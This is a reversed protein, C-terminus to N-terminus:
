KLRIGTGPSRFDTIRRGVDMRFQLDSDLDQEDAQDVAMKAEEYDLKAVQGMPDDFNKLFHYLAGKWLMDQVYSPFVPIDLALDATTLDVLTPDMMYTLYITYVQDAIPWVYVQRCRTTQNVGADFFFLPKNEVVTTGFLNLYFERESEVKSLFYDAGNFAYRLLVPEQCDAPLDYLPLAATQHTGAVTNFTSTARLWQKPIKRIVERRSDNVADIIQQTIADTTIATDGRHSRTKVRVVLDNLVM